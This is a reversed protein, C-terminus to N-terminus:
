AYHSIFKEQFCTILNSLTYNRSGCAQMRPGGEGAAEVVRKWGADSLPCLFFKPAGVFTELARM